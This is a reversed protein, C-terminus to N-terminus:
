GWAAVAPVALAEIEPLDFGFHEAVFARLDARDALQATTVAGDRVITVGQNLVSVRGTETMANLMLANVFPSDPHTSIYHNAVVFDSPNEEELTSVWGAIETDDSARQARLEWAGRERVIRHADRRFTGRDGEALPVPTRASLGGFGPDVVFRRGGTEVTLFMHSRTETQPSGGLVVRAAHRVPAFGLTELVVAFWTAQEFCYGGRRARVLKRELSDVDLLVPRGLLVDFNEFPVAATHAELLGALTEFTPETGGTWAIRDFYAGLQSQTLM